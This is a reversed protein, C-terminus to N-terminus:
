NSVEVILDSEKKSVSYQYSKKDQVSFAFYRYFQIKNVYTEMSASGNKLQAVGIKEWSDSKSVRAYIDVASVSSTTNKIKIKRVAGMGKTDVEFDPNQAPSSDQVIFFKLDDDEIRTKLTLPVQLGTSIRIKDYNILKGHEIDERGSIRGDAKLFNLRKTKRWENRGKELFDVTLTLNNEKTLNTFQLEDNVNLIKGKLKSVDITFIGNEAEWTQLGENSQELQKKLSQEETLKQAGDANTVSNRGEDGTVITTKKTVIFLVNTTKTDLTAVRKIGGNEAATVVSIDGGGLPILGFLFTCSAEGRKESRADTSIGVGYSPAITTCSCIVLATLLLAALKVFKQM